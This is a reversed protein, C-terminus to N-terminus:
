LSRAGGGEHRGERRGSTMCMVREGLGEGKRRAYQLHDFVPPPFPRPILSFPLSSNVHFFFRGNEHLHFSIYQGHLVAIKPFGWFNTGYVSHISSYTLTPSSPFICQQQGLLLTFHKSFSTPSQTSSHTLSSTVFRSQSTFELSAGGVGVLRLMDHYDINNM